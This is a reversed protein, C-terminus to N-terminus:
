CGSGPYFTWWSRADGVSPPNLLLGSWKTSAAQLRIDGDSTPMLLSHHVVHKRGRLWDYHRRYRRCVSEGQVEKFEDTFIGLSWLMDLWRNRLNLPALVGDDLLVDMLNKNYITDLCPDTNIIVVPEIM